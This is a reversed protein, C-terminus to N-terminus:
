FMGKKFKYQLLDLKTAILIISSNIGIQSQIFHFWYLLKNKSILENIEISYDFLLLYVSGSSFFFSHAVHYEEHGAFDWISFLINTKEDKWSFIDVGHTMQDENKTGM